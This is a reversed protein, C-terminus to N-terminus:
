HGGGVRRLPGCEEAELQHQRGVWSSIRLRAGDRPVIQAARYIFMSLSATIGRTRAGPVLDTLHVTTRIFADATIDAKNAAVIERVAKEFASYTM